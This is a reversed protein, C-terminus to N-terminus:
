SRLSRALIEAALDLNSEAHQAPGLLRVQSLRNVLRDDYVAKPCLRRLESTLFSFNQEQSLKMAAGLGDYSMGSQRFVVQPRDAAFLYLLRTREETTVEEQRSVTKSLPIGGSLLTRGLSLKRETVTKLETQGSIRTGPLLLDIERYAIDAWDGDVAEIHLSTEGLKFRRVAFPGSEGHLQAADVLFSALGGQNLKFSLARAQNPDAFGAVVVPGGGVMRQRAEFVTIGLTRSVGQVVDDSAEKWAHMVVVHM